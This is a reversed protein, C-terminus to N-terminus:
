VLASTRCCVYALWCRELSSELSGPDAARLRHQGLLRVCQHLTGLGAVQLSATGGEVERGTASHATQIAQDWGVLLCSLALATADIDTHLLQLTLSVFYLSHSLLFRRLLALSLVTFGCFCILLM